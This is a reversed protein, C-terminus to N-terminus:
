IKLVQHLHVIIIQLYMSMGDNQLALEGETQICKLTAWIPFREEKTKHKVSCEKNVASLHVLITCYNPYHYSYQLLEKPAGKPNRSAAILKADVLKEATALAIGTGYTKGTGKNDM